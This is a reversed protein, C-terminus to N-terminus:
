ALITLNPSSIPWGSGPQRFGTALRVLTAPVRDRSVPFGLFFTTIANFANAVDDASPLQMALMGTQTGRFAFATQGDRTYVKVLNNTREKVAFIFFIILAM